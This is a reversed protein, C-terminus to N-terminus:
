KGHGDTSALEVDDIIPKNELPITSKYVYCRACYLFYFFNLVGLGALLFYFYDLRGSNIDNALWDPRGDGGTVRHVVTVILSSVYNSGGFSCFFLSNGVSKMHDPFQRNFFEILGIATFAECFGMLILQPSLWMVSMPTIGDATPHQLAVQRRDREILGAAMMSATSFIIGIGIRQLLTIGGEHGTARRLAPVLIRDYFPVWLGITILSITFMSGAPIQFKPGLHRDMKLAQSVTFTGQQVMSTFAIIGASWVPIIKLICKAEEVQQISCLRWRDTPIGDPNLEDDKMVMAAKNLSRYIYTLPLKSLVTAAAPPDYFTAGGEPISARRKRYAAVFVQAIGTFVSGEPRIRVYLRTGTFFLVISCFMLMTPIGFGWVWSVSDQIYVVVTLAILLVVTFSTYYWNYFSNIGKQGKETTQDFQDVGFPISCPRIGGTGISLFGLALVLVGLQQTTPGQCQSQSTVVCPPPHLRPLWSTLTLTAMGLFSFFSAVAITLYRGAYADSVFAGILPAFNGIGSWVNLLNSAKVQTMNYKRLLYVMFNAFIGISALREFTENGLIYPMVSWGRPKNEPAMEKREKTPAPPSSSCSCSSRLVPICRAPTLAWCSCFGRPRPAECEDVM